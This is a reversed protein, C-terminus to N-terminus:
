LAIVGRSALTKFAMLADLQALGSSKVISMVDWHGDVRTVIAREPPSLKMGALEGASVGLRPVRFAGLLEHSLEAVIARRIEGDLPASPDLTHAELALATAARSDGAAARGKAEALLAGARDAVLPSVRPGPRQGGPRPILERVDLRVEERSAPRAPEGPFFAFEGATWTLARTVGTRFKERLVERLDEESVAGIMVLIRGLLVGTQRQVEVAQALQDDDVLGRSELATGLREDALTSEESELLGRDFRLERRDEGHELTLTGSLKRRTIWELVDAVAMTELSGNVSMLWLM